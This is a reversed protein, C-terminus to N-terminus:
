DGSPAGKTLGMLRRLTRKLWRLLKLAQEIRLLFCFILYSFAGCIIPVLLNAARDLISNGSIIRLQMALYCVLSMALSALLIKFFQGSILPLGLGGIKKKLMLWSVVFTIIGTLSTALALGNLKMPFMLLFNFIINLILSLLSIKAPTVTDKLSFFCSNLIKTGGYAFLGLSYFFLVGT